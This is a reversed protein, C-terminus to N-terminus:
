KAIVEQLYVPVSVWVGACVCVCVCDSYVYMCVYTHQSSCNISYASM